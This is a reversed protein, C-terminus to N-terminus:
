TKRHEDPYPTYQKESHNFMCICFVNKGKELIVYRFIEYIQWM